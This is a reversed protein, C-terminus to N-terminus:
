KLLVKGVVEFRDFEHIPVSGYESNDSELRITGDLNKYYRKCVASDNLMFIGIEGNELDVTKHVWVVSKDEVTPEMSRGSIRVGFDTGLPIENEPFSIHEVDDEAYLPSGAAAPNIYVLMDVTDAQAPMAGDSVSPRCEEWLADAIGLVYQVVALRSKLSLSVFKEILIRDTPTLNRERIFASLADKADPAFM